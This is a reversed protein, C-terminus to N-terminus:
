SREKQQHGVFFFPQTNKVAAKYPPHANYGKGDVKRMFHYADQQDILIAM